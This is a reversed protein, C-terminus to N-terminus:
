FVKCQCKEVLMNWYNGQKSTNAGVYSWWLQPM